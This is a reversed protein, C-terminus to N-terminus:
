KLTFDATIVRGRTSGNSQQTKNDHKIVVAAPMNKKAIFSVEVHVPIADGKKWNQGTVFVQKNAGKFQTMERYIDSTQAEVIRTDVGKPVFIKVQAAIVNADVDAESGEVGTIIQVTKGNITVIPDNWCWDDAHASSPILAVGALVGLALTLAMLGRIFKM